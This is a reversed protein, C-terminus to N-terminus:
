SSHTRLTRLAEVMKQQSARLQEAALTMQEDSGNDIQEQRLKGLNKGMVERIKRAEASHDLGNFIDSETTQFVDIRQQLTRWEPGHEGSRRAQEVERKLAETQGKEAENKRALEEAEVRLAATAHRMRELAETSDHSM